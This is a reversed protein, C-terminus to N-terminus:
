VLVIERILSVVPGYPLIAILIKIHGTRIYTRVYTRSDINRKISELFTIINGTTLYRVTSTCNKKILKMVSSNKTRIYTRLFSKESWAVTCNYPVTCPLFTTFSSFENLWLNLNATRYNQVQVSRVKCIIFYVVTTVRNRM